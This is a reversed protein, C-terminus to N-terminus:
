LVYVYNLPALEKSIQQVLEASPRVDFIIYIEGIIADNFKLRRIMLSNFGLSHYYATEDSIEDENLLIYENEELIGNVYAQEDLYSGQLGTVSKIIDSDTLIMKKYYAYEKPQYIYVAYNKVSYKTKIMNLAMELGRLDRVERFEIRKETFTNQVASAMEDRFLYVFFGITLLIMVIFFRTGTLEKLAKIIEAFDINM